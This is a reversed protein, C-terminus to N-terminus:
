YSKVMFVENKSGSVVRVRFVGKNQIKFELNRGESKLEQVLKGTLDFVQVKFPAKNVQSVSVM